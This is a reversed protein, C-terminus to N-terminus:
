SWELIEVVKSAKNLQFYITAATKLSNLALSTGAPMTVFNTSSETAVFAFQIKSSGDRVRMIFQKTDTAFTHSVETASLPVSVNTIVPVSPTSSFEVEVPGESTDVCVRLSSLGNLLRKVVASSISM